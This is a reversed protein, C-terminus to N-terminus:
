LQLPRTEPFIGVNTGELQFNEKGSGLQSTLDPNLVHNLNRFELGSCEDAERGLLTLKETEM